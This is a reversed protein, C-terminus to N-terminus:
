LKSKKWNKYLLFGAVAVLIYPFAMLYIIGTNLSESMEVDGSEVVAKCM